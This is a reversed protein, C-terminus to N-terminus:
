QYKSPVLRFQASAVQKLTEDIEHAYKGREVGKFEVQAKQGVSPLSSKAFMELIVFGDKDVLDLYLDSNTEPEAICAVNLKLNVIAKPRDTSASYETDTTWKLDQAPIEYCGEVTTKAVKPGSAKENGGCAVMLGCIAM